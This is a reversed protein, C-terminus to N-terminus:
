AKSFFVQRGEDPDIVIGPAHRHEDAVGPIASGPGILDGFNPM